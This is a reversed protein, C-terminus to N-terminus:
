KFEYIKLYGVHIKDGNTIAIIILYDQMFKVRTSM